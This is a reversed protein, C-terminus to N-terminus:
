GEKNERIPSSWVAVDARKGLITKPMAVLTTLVIIFWYIIAYIVAYFMYKFLNKEYMSDLYVALLFQCLCMTTLFFGYWGHMWLFNMPMNPIVIPLFAGILSFIFTYAWLISVFYEIYVPWFPNTM